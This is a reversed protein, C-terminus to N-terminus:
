GQDNTYQPKKILLLERVVRDLSLQTTELCRLPEVHDKKGPLQGKLESYRASILQLEDKMQLIKDIQEFLLANAQYQNLAM